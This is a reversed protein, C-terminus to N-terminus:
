EAAGEDDEYIPVWAQARDSWYEQAAFTATSYLPDHPAVVQHVGEADKWRLSGPRPTDSV